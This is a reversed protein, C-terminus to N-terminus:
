RPVAWGHHAAYARAAPNDTQGRTMFWEAFAEAVAERVSSSGYDSMGGVERGDFDEGNHAIHGWEHALVYRWRETNELTAYSPMSPNNASMWRPGFFVDEGLLLVPSYHRSEEPRITWGGGMDVQSLVALRMPMDGPIPYDVLLRDLMELIQQEVQETDPRRLDVEIVVEHPGNRYAREPLASDEMMATAEAKAVREPMGSDILHQVLRGWRAAMHDRLHQPRWRGPQYPQGDIRELLRDIWGGGEDAVKSAGMDISAVPSEGMAMEVWDPSEDRFRGGGPGKGGPGVPTGRPWREQDAM